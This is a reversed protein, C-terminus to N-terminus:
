GNKSSVWSSFLNIGRPIRKGLASCTKLLQDSFTELDIGATRYTSMYLASLLCCVDSYGLETHHFDSTADVYVPTKEPEVPGVKLRRTM